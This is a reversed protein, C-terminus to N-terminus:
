YSKNDIQMREIENLHQKIKELGADEKGEFVRIFKINPLYKRIIKERRQDQEIQTIHAKEDYEVILDEKIFWFDPRYKIQWSIIEDHIFRGKLGSNELLRRFKIEKRSEDLLEKTTLRRKLHDINNWLKTNAKWSKFAEEVVNHVWFKESMYLMQAYVFNRDFLYLRKKILAEPRIGEAIQFEFLFNKGNKSKIWKAIENHRDEISFLRMTALEEDDDNEYIHNVIQILKTHIISQWKTREQVKIRPIFLAQPPINIKIAETVLKNRIKEIREAFEYKYFDVGSDDFYIFDTIHDAVYQYMASYYSAASAAKEDGRHQRILSVEETVFKQLSLIYTDPLM